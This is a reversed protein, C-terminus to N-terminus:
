LPRAEEALLRPIGERIPYALRCSACHLEGAAPPTGVHRLAQKCRPCALTPLLWEPFDM